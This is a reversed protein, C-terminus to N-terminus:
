SQLLLRVPDELQEKVTVLFSVAERGDIIRHDYSLAVYMMPAAIIQGDTGVVPRQQTAHMGLIASQPPNIIPTSLLSGFVGGNTITFTGGILDEMTLSGDKAKGAFQRISKELDALSMEGADRIVPVVLGRPASVAISVHQYDHYVIEDGDISANVAPFRKLGEVAARIFLSMFGLRVGHRQEFAEGHRKRLAMVATMNVENFTTLIANESQAKLLRQAINRRLASMKERREGHVAVMTVSPSPTTQEATEPLPAPPAADAQPQQVHDLVNEPRLRGDADPAVQDAQLGHEALLRRTTPSTPPAYASAPQAPAVATVLSAAPQQPAASAQGIVATPPVPTAQEPAATQQATDPQQGAGDPDLIALVEQSQVDEGEPKRIETLVGAVPAPIELTVKDTEIDALNDGRKVTDGSSKHWSLVRAHSVSEALIPVKVEYTM